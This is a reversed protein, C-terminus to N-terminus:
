NFRHGRKTLKLFNDKRRECLAAKNKWFQGKENHASTLPVIRMQSTETFPLWTHFSNPSRWSLRELAHLVQRVEEQHSVKCDGTPSLLMPNRRFEVMLVPRPLSIVAGAGQLCVPVGDTPDIGLTMAGDVSDAFHLKFSM